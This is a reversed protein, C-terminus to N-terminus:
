IIDAFFKEIHKYYTLGLYLIIGIVCISVLQGPWYISEEGGIITRRFGDIIGAMPNLHYLLRWKEPIISGSFAVPSIYLGFQIAFPVLQRCDRYRVNLAASWVGLAFSLVLLEIIFFPLFIIEKPPVFRYYVLLICLMGATILFDIFTIIMSSIPLLIRPFYIKTILQYNVILSESCDSLTSAFFQWPLLGTIVLLVYPYGKDQGLHVLKGFVLTLTILLLFPKLIHWLFGVATQKYRVLLDRWTLFFLLERYQWLERVYNTKNKGAEILLM